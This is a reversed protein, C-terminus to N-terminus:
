RNKLCMHMAALTDALLFKLHRKSKVRPQTHLVNDRSHETGNAHQPATSNLARAWGKTQTCAHMCVGTETQDTQRGTEADGDCGSM